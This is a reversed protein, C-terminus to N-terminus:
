GRKLIDQKTIIGVIKNRDAVLVAQEEKLIGILLPVKADRSVVPFTHRDMVERATLSKLDKGMLTKETITGEQFGSKALVPVQSVDKSVMGKMIAEAPDDPGFALLNKTMVDGATKEAKEAQRSELRDLTEFVKVAVSYSPVARAREVKALFSQGIESLDALQKQSLGLNVRRKKIEALAPFDM